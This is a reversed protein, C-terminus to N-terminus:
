KRINKAYVEIIRNWKKQNYSSLKMKKLGASIELLNFYDLTDVVRGNEIFRRLIWFYVDMGKNEEIYKKLNERKTLRPYDWFVANLYNM